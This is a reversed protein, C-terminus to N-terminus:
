DRLLHKETLYTFISEAAIRPGERTWHPDRTFYMPRVSGNRLAPLLPLTPLQRSKGYEAFTDSFKGMNRTFFVDTYLHGFGKEEWEARDIELCSPIIVVLVKAGRSLSFDRINVLLDETRHLAKEFEPSYHDQYIALINELIFEKTFAETLLIQIGRLYSIFYFRNKFRQKKFVSPIGKMVDDIDNNHLGVIVLDPEYRLQLQHLYLYEQETGYGEVGANIVEYTRAAKGRPAKNLMAELMKSYSEEANVGVGFTFSDGLVLIRYVMPDKKAPYDHDRLGESNIKISVSFESTQHTMTYHPVLTYGLKEDPQHMLRLKVSDPMVLRTVGEALLFLVCVTIISVLCNVIIKIL